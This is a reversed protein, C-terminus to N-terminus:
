GKETFGIHHPPSKRKGSRGQALISSGEGGKRCLLKARIPTVPSKEKKKKERGFLKFQREGTGTRAPRRIALSPKIGRDAKETASSEERLLKTESIGDRKKQAATSATRPAMPGEVKKEEGGTASCQHGLCGIPYFCGGEGKEGKRLRSSFVGFVL